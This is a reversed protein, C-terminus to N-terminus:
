ATVLGDAFRIRFARLTLVLTTALVSAGTVVHLTNVIPHKGSLVVYAGLTVQVGILFMLLMAPRRLDIRDPHHRWIASTQVIAVITVVIAGVRHAFHIAIDPTWFPPLVRGYSLPFDPIALGAGSHRMTAGLLIQVYVLVTLLVLGRQLRADDAPM